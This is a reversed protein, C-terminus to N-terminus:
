ELFRPPPAALFPHLLARYGLQSSLHSHPAKDAALPTGTAWFAFDAAYSWPCPKFGSGLAWCLEAEM